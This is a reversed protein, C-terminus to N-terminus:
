ASMPQLRLQKAKEMCKQYYKMSFRPPKPHSESRGSGHMAVFYRVCDYSHDAVSEERDDCFIQKGDLYGLSKRRQSQMESIAHFCGNPYDNSKKIFYLGPSPTTGTIPHKWFGFKLKENLRNRTAFENNDAAIWHLPPADLSSDSYEDATTWFGGDKQSTTKFIQPDAYNASYRESGSLESIAKRHYSIPRGPVYYERYCIYNGDLVAFWLCCTPSADGHDLVRFLNGKRLIRDLLEPSYDLQSESDLRHIQASSIGWQGKVYKNVWEADHTIAEEYTESSGLNKDWEGEVYFFAPRRELSDPHFKRFIFHFQSDPNCLLMHYSPAVYKGTTRNKPWHPYKELLATPIEANDWRGIRGDLVDFVKEEIEEAQDILASNIELGRLTSEDVKDLHLWHIVSKNIFETYGDQENHRAIIGPPCIKFFTQMTTKKLDSYTQRAIIMRYNSFTSLLTFAKCCGGFSKGNNFGGSFCQNRVKSFYFARQAANVFKIQLEL